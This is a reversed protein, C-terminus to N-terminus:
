ILLRRRALGNGVTYDDTEASVGSDLTSQNVVLTNNAGFFTYSNDSGNVTVSSNSGDITINNGISTIAAGDGSVTINAGSNDAVSVTDGDGAYVTNGTGSVNLTADSAGTVTDNNGSTSADSGSAAFVFNGSGDISISGGGSSVFVGNSGSYTGSSTEYNAWIPNLSVLGQNLDLSTRNNGEGLDTAYQAVAVAMAAINAATPDALYQGFTGIEAQTPLRGLANEFAAVVDFGNLLTYQDNNVTEPLAYDSQYESSNVISEALAQRDLVGNSIYQALYQTQAGDMPHGLLTEYIENAISVDQNETAVDITISGSTGGTSGDNWSWTDIGNADINHTASGPADGASAAASGATVTQAWQYSGNANAFDVTTDALGTSTTLTTVLGNASVTYTNSQQLTASTSSTDGYYDFVQTKSGDPAITTTDVQEDIGNGDNDVDTVISLGNASTTTITESRLNSLSDGFATEVVETTSGDANLTTTDLGIIDTGLMSSPLTTGSLLDAAAADLNAVTEQGTPDYAFSKVLGDPSVDAVTQGVLNSSSDYNLTTTTKSANANTVVTIVEKTAPAGFSGTFNLTETTTDNANEVYVDTEVNYNTGDYDSEKTTSITRGDWSTNVTTQEEIVSLSGPNYYTTVETKSGDLNTTTQDTIYASADSGLTVSTTTQLQNASTVITETDAPSTATGITDAITETTIGTDAIVTDETTSVTFGSANTSALEGALILSITLNQNNGSKQTKRSTTFNTGNVVDTDEFDELTGGDGNTDYTTTDTQTDVATGSANEYTTSALLGNGSTWKVVISMLAHSANYSLATKLIAGYDQTQTTETQDVIAITGTENLYRDTTITQQDASTTTAVQEITAGNANAATVTETRSGDSNLVTDDTTTLNFVPAASGNVAGNVDEQTVTSLGNPYSTTM